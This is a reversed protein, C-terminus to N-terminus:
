KSRVMGGILSIRLADGDTALVTLADTVSAINQDPIIQISFQTQNGNINSIVVQQDLNLLKGPVGFAANFSQAGAAALTPTIYEVPATYGVLDALSNWASMPTEFEFELTPMKVRLISYNLLHRFAHLKKAADAVTDPTQNAAAGAGSSQVMNLAIRDFVFSNGAPLRRSETMSTHGLTKTVGFQASNQPVAFFEVLQNWGTAFKVTDWITSSIFDGAGAPRSGQNVLGLAQMSRESVAFM